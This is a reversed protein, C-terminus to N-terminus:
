RSNSYLFDPWKHGWAPSSCFKNSAHLALACGWMSERRIRSSVESADVPPPQPVRWRSNGSPFRGLGAEKTFDQNWEWKKSKGGGFKLERWLATKPIFALSLPHPFQCRMLKLTREEWRPTLIVPTLTSTKSKLKHWSRDKLGGLSNCAQWQSGTEWLGLKGGFQHESNWNM